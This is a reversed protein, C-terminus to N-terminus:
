RSGGYRVRRTASRERQRRVKSTHRAAAKRRAGIPLWLDVLWSFAAIVLTALAAARVPEIALRDSLAATLALLGGNAVVLLLASCVAPLPANALRPLPAIVLNVLSLLAALWLLAGIGGSIQIGPAQRVTVGIVIGVAIVRIIARAPV